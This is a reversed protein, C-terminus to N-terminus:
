GATKPPLPFNVSVHGDPSVEVKQTQTTEQGNDNWRARIEYVYRSGPTLPPSQYERVPGRSTTESGDFWVQAGPPVRVTLRAANGQVPATSRMAAPSASFYGYTYAPIVGEYSGSDRLDPQLSPNNYPYPDAAVSSGTYGLDYSAGSGVYPDTGYSYPYYDYSYPYYGYLGYGYRPYHYHGAYYGSHYGGFRAGAFHGEGFHAGGFHGVGGFHGGGFNGGGGHGGGGHQAQGLGPMLFVVAGALLLLGSCSVMNRFMTHRREHEETDPLQYGKL